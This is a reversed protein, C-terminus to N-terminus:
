PERRRIQRLVAFNVWPQPLSMLQYQVLLSIVPKQAIGPKHNIRRDPTGNCPLQLALDISATPLTNSLTHKSFSPSSTIFIHMIKRLCQPYWIIRIIRIIHSLIQIPYPLNPSSSLKIVARCTERMLLVLEREDNILVVELM